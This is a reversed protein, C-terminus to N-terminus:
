AATIANPAQSSDRAVLYAFPNGQLVDGADLLLVRGPNASRVSDVASALRTLGRGPEPKNSYYDWARLRGHTDTTGALVIEVTDALIGSGTAIAAPPACASSLFALVAAAGPFYTRLPSRRANM